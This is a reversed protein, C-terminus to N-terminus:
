RASFGGHHRRGIIVLMLVRVRIKPTM